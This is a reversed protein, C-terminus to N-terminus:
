ITLIICVVSINEWVFNRHRYLQTNPSLCRMDLRRNGQQYSSLINQFLGDSTYCKATSVWHSALEFVCCWLFSCNLSRVSFCSVESKAKQELLCDSTQEAHCLCRVGGAVCSFHSDDNQSTRPTSPQRACTIEIFRQFSFRKAVIYFLKM